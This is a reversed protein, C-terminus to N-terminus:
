RSTSRTSRRTCSARRYASTSPRPSRALRIGKHAPRWCGSRCLCVTPRISCTAQGAACPGQYVDFAFARYGNALRKVDDASASPATLRAIAVPETVAEATRVAVKYPGTGGGGARVRVEYRGAAPLTTLRRADPGVAQEDDWPVREGASSWVEVETAFAHSDVEVSVPEGAGGNFAWVGVSGDGLMAEVRTGTELEKAEMELDRAPVETTRVGVHYLGTGGNVARVWVQYRGASPLTEALWADLGPGGNDYWALRHGSQSRLELQPDFARSSAEISVAQGTVGEFEWIGVLAETGLVADAPTGVELYRRTATRVALRYTGPRRDVAYVQVEYPGTAPLAGLLWVDTGSGQHHNWHLRTGSPSHLGLRPLFAASEAVVSVMQGAVGEFEWRGVAKGDLVGGVQTDVELRAAEVARVAVGYVGAVGDQPFVWVQYRGSSPLMAVLQAEIGHGGNSDRAVLEGSAHRLELVPDFAQSGAVVSLAQGALGKFEWIEVPADAGLAAEVTTGLELPTSARAHLALRYPGTGQDGALVRLQYSGAAPLRKVLWAGFGAGRDGKDRAISDGTPSRLEIVPDFAESGAVMSVVQGALGEFEWLEVPADAGLAAEVTTDMELHTSSMAHAALRYPGTRGTGALVRLQYSGAAPLREVLWADFGPGEGESWAISDGSPSRLEIVPDFAKSGAVVSLVQGALGEFEWIGVPPRPLSM